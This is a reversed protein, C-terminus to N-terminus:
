RAGRWVAAALPAAGLGVYMAVTWVGATTEIWKGSGPRSSRVFVSAVAACSIVLVVLLAATPSKTGISGAAQLAAFATLTVALLWAGAAGRAGWFASYTEVGAEEDAAARTKRGIEIVTGNLFSVILFWFLGAPPKTMGSVRWDCATAYLDILPVIMMHSAMYILPHAKLWRAMFFERTMLALYTWTVLLLWVLSPQLVLALGLQVVAAAAGVWALERLTVLGRPVPRYPRFRADEEFDKFEDAIRLQLFFLLSTVFAVVLSTVSPPATVGRLLSSFCVASGSFAAILPVHAALPFRERQYVVWREAFRDM